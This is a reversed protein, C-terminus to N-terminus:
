LVHRLFFSGFSVLDKEVIMSESRGGEEKLILRNKRILSFFLFTWILQYFKRVQFLKCPVQLVNKEEEEGTVIKENAM